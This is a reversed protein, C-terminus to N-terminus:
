LSSGTRENRYAFPCLNIFLEKIEEESLEASLIQLLEEQRPMGLVARYRVLVDILHGYRAEERGFRRLYVHREITEDSYADLGWHPVLGAKCTGSVAMEEEAKVFLTAWIDENEFTFSTSRRDALNQRLALSEYRNIRGERQELDIPNSPLNWHVIKRCYSHFDLGEQGISTSVLVFPRFPSNFARRMNDRRNTNRGAGEDMMFAAAFEARMRMPPYDSCDDLVKGRFSLLTDVEYQSQMTYLSPGRFTSVKDGVMQNCLSEASKDFGLQHGYEDLVSQLNGNICYDLVTAWHSRDRRESPYCADIALTSAPTNMKRTFAYAFRFALVPDREASYGDCRSFLRIACVAPSGLAIDVLRQALNWPQNGLEDFGMRDIQRWEALAKRMTASTCEADEISRILRNVYDPDQSFRGDLCFCAKLVWRLDEPGERRPADPVGADSLMNKVSIALEERIESLARGIGIEAWNVCKALSPSPYILCVPGRTEPLFLLRGSPLTRKSSQRKSEATEVDEAETEDFYSYPIKRSGFRQELSRREDEYSLLTSMMRPVMTWSSFVLTKSFGEAGVYPGETVQYYPITAPVWLLASADYDKCKTEFVDEQLAKFRSNPIDLKRYNRVNETSLWLLKATNNDSRKITFRSQQRRVAKEFKEGLKYGKLYSLLYPCSESYSPSFSQQTGFRAMLKRAALFSTVDRSELEVYQKCDTVLDRYEDLSTRESRAIIKRLAREAKSRAEVFTPSSTSESEGIQSLLRGYRNWTEKFERKGGESPSLFEVVRIFDQQSESGFFTEDEAATSYSKFPTASLLLVRIPDEERDHGRLFRESLMGLESTRDEDLINRFRQFEDMIVLDPDLGAASIQAFINRLQGIKRSRGHQEGSLAFGRIERLEDSYAELQDFVKELYEDGAKDVRGSYADPEKRTFYNWTRDLVNGHLLEGLEKVCGTFMDHRRLVEYILAREQVIGGGDTIYFSTGPTLPILQIYQGHEKAYVENEFSVLHQMSIRSESSDIRHVLNRDISLKALNQNAIAGNSCIYAVKFLPDESKKRLVATTAIVGRAILTKGLGVEDAVLVRQAGSEFLTEVHKVTEQQFPKLEALVAERTREIEELSPTTIEPM